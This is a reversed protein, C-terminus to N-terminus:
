VRPSLGLARVFKKLKAKTTGKHIHQVHERRMPQVYNVIVHGNAVCKHIFHCCLNIHKTCLHFKNDRSLTTSSQNDCNSPGWYPISSALPCRKSCPYACHIWNRYKVLCHYIYPKKSSWSVAGECIPPQIQIHFLPSDPQSLQTQMM